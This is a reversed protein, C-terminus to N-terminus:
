HNSSSSLFKEDWDRFNADDKSTALGKQQRRNELLKKDWEDFLDEDYNAPVQSTAHQHQQEGQQKQNAIEENGTWKSVVKKTYDGAQYNRDGTIFEKMRADIENTLTSTIKGGVSQAISAEMTLNLLETLVKLPLIRTVPQLNIGITAVIKIFLLLDDRTYEGERFRRILEKSIDGFQYGKKNTFKGVQEKAKTDLLRSIDGFKYSSKRTEKIDDKVKKLASRTLDGFRYSKKPLQQRYRSIAYDEEEEISNNINNSASLTLLYRRDNNTHCFYHSRHHYDTVINAVRINIDVVFAEVIIPSPSCRVFSCIITLILLMDSIRIMM